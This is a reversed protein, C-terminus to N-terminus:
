KKQPPNFSGDTYFCYKSPFKLPTETDYNPIQPIINHLYTSPTPYTLNNWTKCENVELSHPTPPAIQTITRSINLNNCINKITNMQEINGISNNQHHVCLIRITFPEIRPENSEQPRTLECVQHHRSTNPHSCTHRPLSRSTTYLEWLHWEKLMAKMHYINDISWAKFIIIFPKAGVEELLHFM